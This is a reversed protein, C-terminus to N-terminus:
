DGTDMVPDGPAGGPDFPPTSSYSYAVVGHENARKEVRYWGTQGHLPVIIDCPAGEFPWVGGNFRLRRERTSDNVWKVLDQRKRSPSPSSDVGQDNALLHIIFERPPGVKKKKRRKPMGKKRAAAKRPAKKGAAKKGKRAKKRAAM